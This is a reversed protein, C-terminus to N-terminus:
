KLWAESRDEALREIRLGLHDLSMRRLAPHAGRIEHLSAAPNRTLITRLVAEASPSDKFNLVVTWPPATM